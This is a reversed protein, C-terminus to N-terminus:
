EEEDDSQEKIPIDGDVKVGTEKKTIEIKVDARFDEGNNIGEPVIDELQDGDLYVGYGTHRFEVNKVDIVVKSM